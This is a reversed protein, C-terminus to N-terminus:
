APRVAGGDPSYGMRGAAHVAQARTHVGLKCFINEIHRGATKDSIVLRAAMARNSLGEAILGLVEIERQSLRAGAAGAALEAAAEEEGTIEGGVLRRLWGDVSGEGFDLWVPHQVDGGVDVPPGTPAFGLPAFIPALATADAMASYLRSLRPRLEMYTRKVDLWCVGVAPSLLEGSDRGLWRRMVLVRDGENPPVAAMHAVWARAVPDSDVLAADLDGIEALHLVAAVDGDPGRAISFGRPAQRLWADLVEAAGPPEHRGIIARIAPADGPVAPEVHYGAAGVPFCAARLVPNQILYILDATVSWLRAPNPTRARTEFYAWARRRYTVHREPDRERLDAALAERVVDHIMLGEPTREVFPLGALADFDARVGPRALLSRLIPETVRRSTSAAELTEITREPLGSLVADLLQRIVAPPPGGAIDRDPDALLAAAALELALPHGRAFRNARAAGLEGLGRRRLLAISESQRLPALPLEAVLGSWGPSTMWPRPPDRGAIVTILTGPLRPLFVNRLWTDLLVFREYSDLALVVRRGGSMQEAVDPVDPHPSPSGLARAVARIFGDPTPEVDRCDLLVTPVDADVDALAAQLLRSKGIGGPGTIFLVLPGGAPSTIAARIRGLEAERGVFGSLAATRVIEAITRSDPM